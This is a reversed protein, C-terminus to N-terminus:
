LKRDIKVGRKKDMEDLIKRTIEEIEKAREPSIWLGNYKKTEDWGVEILSLGNESPIKYKMSEKYLGFFYRRLKWIFEPMVPDLTLETRLSELYKYYLVYPFSASHDYMHRYFTKGQYEDLYHIKGAYFESMYYQVKEDEVFKLTLALWHSMFGWPGKPENADDIGNQYIMLTMLDTNWKYFPKGEEQAKKTYEEDKKVLEDINSMAICETLPDNTQFGYPKHM